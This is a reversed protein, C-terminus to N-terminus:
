IRPGYVVEQYASEKVEVGPLAIDAPDRFEM